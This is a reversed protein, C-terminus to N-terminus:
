TLFIVWEDFLFKRAVIYIFSTFPDAFDFRYHVGCLVKLCLISPPFSCVGEGEFTVGSFFSLSLM